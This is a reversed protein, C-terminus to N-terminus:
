MMQNLVKGFTEYATALAKQQAAAEKSKPAVSLSIPSMSERMIGNDVSIEATVFRSPLFHKANGLCSFLPFLPNDGDDAALSESSRGRNPALSDVNIEFTQMKEMYDDMWETVLGGADIAENAVRKTRTRPQREISSSSNGGNRSLNEIIERQFLVKLVSKCKETSNRKSFINNTVAVPYECEVNLAAAATDEVSSSLSDVPNVPKIIEVTEVPAAQM